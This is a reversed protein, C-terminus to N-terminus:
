QAPKRPTGPGWDDGEFGDEPKADADLDRVEEEARELEEWDIDDDAATTRTDARGGTRTDARGGTGPDTRGRAWTDTRPGNQGTDATRRVLTIIAWLLLVIALASIFGPVPM